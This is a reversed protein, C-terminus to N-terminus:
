RQHCSVKLQASPVLESPNRCYPIRTTTRCLATRSRLWLWRDFLSQLPRSGRNSSVTQLRMAHRYNRQRQEAARNIQLLYDSCNPVLPDPRCLRAVPLRTRAIRYGRRSREGRGRRTPRTGSDSDCRGCRCFTTATRRCRANRSMRGRREWACQHGFCSFRRPQHLWRSLLLPQPIPAAMTLWSCKMLSDEIKCLHPSAEFTPFFVLLGTIPLFFSPGNSLAQCTKVPCPFWDHQPSLRCHETLAKTSCPLSGCSQNCPYGHQHVQCVLWHPAFTCTHLLPHSPRMNMLYPLTPSASHAPCVHYSGIQGYRV